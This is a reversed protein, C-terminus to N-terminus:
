MKKAYRRQLFGIMLPMFLKKRTKGSKFATKETEIMQKFDQYLDGSLL